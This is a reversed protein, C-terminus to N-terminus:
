KANIIAAHYVHVVYGNAFGGTYNGTNYCSLAGQLRAQPANTVPTHAYCTGLIRAAIRLNGCTDFVSEWTAGYRTVNISNVQALGSDFNIGAASLRRAVDVAEAASAPQRSLRVGARNLTITFPNNRSEYSVIARMTAPAVDPCCLLSIAAVDLMM